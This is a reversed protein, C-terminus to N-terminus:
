SIMLANLIAGSNAMDLLDADGFVLLSLLQSEVHEVSEVGHSLVHSAPFCNEVATLVVDLKVFLAAELNGTGLHLPLKVLLPGQNSIDKM